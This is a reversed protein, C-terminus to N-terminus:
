RLPRLGWTRMGALTKGTMDHCQVPSWIRGVELPVVASVFGPAATDAGGIQRHTGAVILRVAETKKVHRHAKCTPWIGWHELRGAEEASLM